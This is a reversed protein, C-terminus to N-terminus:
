QCECFDLFGSTALDCVGRFGDMACSSGRLRGSCARIAISTSSVSKCRDEPRESNAACSVTHEGISISSGPTILFSEANAVNCFLFGLLVLSAKM